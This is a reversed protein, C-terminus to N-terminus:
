PSNLDIIKVLEFEEAVKALQNYRLMVGDYYGATTTLTTTRVFEWQPDAEFLYYNGAGRRLRVINRVYRDQVLDEASTGTGTGTGTGSGSGTGVADDEPVTVVDHNNVEYAPWDDNPTGVGIPSGRRVTRDWDIRLASATGDEVRLWSYATYQPIDALTKYTLEAWFTEDPDPDSLSSSVFWHGFKDRHALVWTGGPVAATGLNYVNRVLGSVEMFDPTAGTTDLKYVQCDAYGPVDDNAETSGTGTTGGRNLAPIGDGPTLAIYVEPAYSLPPPVAPRGPVNGPNVGSRRVVERLLVVDAESLVYGEAM